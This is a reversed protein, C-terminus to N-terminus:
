EAGETDEDVAIELALRIRKLELLMEGMIRNASLTATVVEKEENTLGRIGAITQEASM